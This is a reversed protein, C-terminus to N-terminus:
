ACVLQPPNDANTAVVTALMINSGIGAFGGNNSDLSARDWDESPDVLDELDGLDYFTLDNRNDRASVYRILRKRRREEELVGELIPDGQHKAASKILCWVHGILYVTRVM